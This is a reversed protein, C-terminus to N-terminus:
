DAPAVTKFQARHDQTKGYIVKKLSLALHQIHKPQHRSTVIIRLCEEGVPVTPYNIPQMYVGQEELLREAVERCHAAGKVPIKTIHSANEAYKIGYQKLATRLRKVNERFEERWEPHQQILTISKLAASCVAPPLSTTFIFGSGFSRIFDVLEASGSIFGGFVGIAKSLTGNIVDVEASLNEQELVGAGNKGYLGIAHVEDVYSLAGYKKCLRLLEKLPAVNGSISYVSEVVLMKPQDIPLSKLIEELLRVDNHRFIFKKNGASRMGEILSAHNFEDSIFVLDPISRGITQLSTVNAHYAGNFLLAAQKGTWGAIEAELERHHNTTGSINRTGSSGTGSRHATFSLKAIVEEHTSMCLYDNSCWNVASRQIGNKDRYHFHPFHVASKNVDVFNRYAGTQKLENLKEEFFEGYNFMSFLKKGAPLIVSVKM